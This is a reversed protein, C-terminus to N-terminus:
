IVHRGGNYKAYDEHGAFLSEPIPHINMIGSPYGVNLEGENM